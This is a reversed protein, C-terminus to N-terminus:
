YTCATGVVAAPDLVLWDGHALHADVAPAAVEIVFELLPPDDTLDPNHHCIKVRDQPGAQAPSYVVMAFVFAALAALVLLRKM